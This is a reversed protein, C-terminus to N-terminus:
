GGNGGGGGGRVVGGGSMSIPEHHGRGPGGPNGLKFAGAHRRRKVNSMESVSKAITLLVESTRRMTAEVEKRTADDMDATLYPKAGQLELIVMKLKAEVARRARPLDASLKLM